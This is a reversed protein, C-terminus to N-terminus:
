SGGRMAAPLPLGLTKCARRIHALVQAETVGNGHNRLKYADEADKATRIPYKKQGNVNMTIPGSAAMEAAKATAVRDKAKGTFKTKDARQPAGKVNAYLARLYALAKDRDTFSAKVVGANNVVVFKGGQAKVKYPANAGSPAAAQEGSVGDPYAYHAYLASVADLAAEESAIETYITTDNPLDRRVEFRGDATDTITWTM